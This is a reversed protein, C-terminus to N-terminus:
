KQNVFCELNSDKIKNLLKFQKIIGEIISLQEETIGEIHLIRINEEATQLDIKEKHYIITNSNQENNMLLFKDFDFNLIKSLGVMIPLTPVVKGKEISSLNGQSIGLLDALKKQTLNNNKRCNIVRLPISDIISKVQEKASSVIKVPYEDKYVIGFLGENKIGQKHLEDENIGFVISSPYIDFFKCYLILLELSLSVRGTEIASLNSRTIGFLDALKQQNFNIISRRTRIIELRKGIEKNNISELAM